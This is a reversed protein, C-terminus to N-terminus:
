ECLIVDEGSCTDATLTHTAAADCACDVTTGYFDCQTTFGFCSIHDFYCCQSQVAVQQGFPVTVTGADEAFLWGDADPASVYAWSFLTITGCDASYDQRDLANNYLTFVEEECPGTGASGGRATGGTGAAPGGGSGGRAAVETKPHYGDLDMCALPGGVLVVGFCWVWLRRYTM